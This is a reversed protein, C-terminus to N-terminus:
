CRCYGLDLGPPAGLYATIYGWKAVSVPLKAWFHGTKPCFVRLYPRITAFLLVNAANNTFEKCSFFFRELFYIQLCFHLKEQIQAHIQLLHLM